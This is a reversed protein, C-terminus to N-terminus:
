AKDPKESTKESMYNHSDSLNPSSCGGAGSSFLPNMLPPHPVRLHIQFFPVLEHLLHLGLLDDLPAGPQIERVHSDVGIPKFPHYDGPQCAESEIDRAADEALLTSFENGNLDILKATGGSLITKIIYSGSRKLRFKGHADFVLARIEKTLM